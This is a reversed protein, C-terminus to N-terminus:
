ERVEHREHEGPRPAFPEPVQGQSTRLRLEHRGLHILAGGRPDRLRRPVGWLGMAPLRKLPKGGSRGEEGALKGHDVHAVVPAVCKM